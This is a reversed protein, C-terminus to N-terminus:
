YKYSAGLRVRFPSMRGTLQGFQPGDQEQVSTITRLALVNLIDAFFELRHGILPRLNVRVQVAMDQVDPLRLERDDSPDNINTGPNSGRRARYDEFNGTETNRFLRSYPVGSYYTDTAGLSLWSTAQYTMLAKVEHRHDDSLPGNLYVDRPTIDGYPNSNGGYVTGQLQSWTYAIRAKVKGERKSLSTTVGLYSRRAGDPTGMDMITQARGNRYSGTRDLESGSANWIRNTERSEYQNIFRRYIVDSGLAVGEVVEREAGTTYEWTRPIRLAERCNKGTIDVGTPGCPLGFTNSSLGGSFTCGTDFLGNAANYRCNRSAQSGSSFRALDLLEVDVYSSFSGRIVTRGDHTPDWAATISPAWALTNVAVDGRQNEGRGFVLSIAPTFTLHRTARWTDALTTTNKQTIGAVINWGYRPTEYRPDNSFYETLQLPIDGNYQLFQDGPRAQRMVQREARFTDSVKIDHEGFSKTDLFYELRNILEISSTDNRQHNNSNNYYVTRPYTNAVPVVFDCNPNTACLRPYIHEPWMVVGLQSRFVLKDTLLAEWILGGFYRRSLRDEQADATYGLGGNRNFEFSWDWNFVLSVKHRPSAQWTVKGTGKMVTKLSNPPDPLIGLPDKDRGVVFENFEANVAFWLRDKIIPGSLTPNLLLFSEGLRSDTSDRFFQLQPSQVFTEFQAEFRNSGSRTVLNVVGGTVTPNDAGYGAGQIEYAAASKLTPFQGLMTFGDMTYATQNDNGGRMKQGRIAGSASLAMSAPGNNRAALPLSDMFEVDYVEKVNATTTSIVPAKQVVVVQEEATKVEMIPSIEAAASIGVKVGKQVYPALGPATAHIEFEGPELQIIRFFGEDNTYATKQGGIQTDSKVVIKVGKVPNGAQDMVNGVIAGSNSGQAFVASPALLLGVIILAKM